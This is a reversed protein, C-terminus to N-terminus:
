VQGKAQIDQRDLFQGTGQESKLLGYGDFRADSYTMHTVPLFSLENVAHKMNLTEPSTM